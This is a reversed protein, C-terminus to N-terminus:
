PADGPKGEERGIHKRVLSLPAAGVLSGGTYEPPYAKLASRARARDSALFPDFPLSRPARQRGATDSM